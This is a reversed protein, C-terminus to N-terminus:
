FNVSVFFSSYEDEHEFGCPVINYLHIILQKNNLPNFFGGNIQMDDECWNLYYDSYVKKLIEEHLVKKDGLQNIMILRGKGNSREIKFIRNDALLGGDVNNIYNMKLNSIPVITYKEFGNQYDTRMRQIIDCKKNYEEDRGFEELDYGFSPLETNNKADFFDLGVSCMGCVDESVWNYAFVGEESWGVPLINFFSYNNLGTPRPLEITNINFFYNSICGDNHEESNYSPVIQQGYKLNFLSDLKQNLSLLQNKLEKNKEILGENEYSLENVKQTLSNRELKLDNIENFYLDKNKILLM